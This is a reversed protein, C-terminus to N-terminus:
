LKYFCVVDNCVFSSSSFTKEIYDGKNFFNGNWYPVTINNAINEKIYM